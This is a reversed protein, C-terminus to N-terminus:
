KKNAAKFKKAMDCARRLAECNKNYDALQDIFIDLERKDKYLKSVEIEKGIVDSQKLPNGDESPYYFNLLNSLEYACIEVIYKEKESRGIIKM